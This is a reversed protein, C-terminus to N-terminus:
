ANLLVHDNTVQISMIHVQASKKKKKKKGNARIAKVKRPLEKWSLLKGFAKRQKIIM